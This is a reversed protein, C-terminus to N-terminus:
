GEQGGDAAALRDHCPQPRRQLLRLRAGREHDALVADPLRGHDAGREGAELGLAPEDELGTRRLDVAASRM